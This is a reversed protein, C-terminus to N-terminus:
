GKPGFHGLKFDPVIRNGTDDGVPEIASAPKGKADNGGSGGKAADEPRNHDVLKMLDKAHLTSELSNTEYGHHREDDGAKEDLLSNTVM